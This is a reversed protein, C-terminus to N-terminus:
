VQSWGLFVCRGASSMKPGALRTPHQGPQVNRNCCLRLRLAALHPGSKSTRSHIFHILSIRTGWVMPKGMSWLWNQIIPGVMKPFVWVTSSPFFMNGVGLILDVKWDTWQNLSHGPHFGNTNLAAQSSYWSHLSKSGWTYNTTETKREM